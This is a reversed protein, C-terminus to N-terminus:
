VVEVAVVWREAEFALAVPKAAFVEIGPGV